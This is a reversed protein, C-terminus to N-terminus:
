LISVVEDPGVTRELNSGLDLLTIRVDGPSRRQIGVPIARIVSGDRLTFTSPQFEGTRNLLELVTQLVQTSSLPGVNRPYIYAEEISLDAVRKEGVHMPTRRGLRDRIAILDRAVPDSAEIFRIASFEIGLNPLSQMCLYLKGYADGLTASSVSTSGIYFSWHRRESARIWAAVAINFGARVLAALLKGGEEVQNEVLVATDM